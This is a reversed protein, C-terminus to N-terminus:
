RAPRPPRDKSGVPPPTGLKGKNAPESGLRGKPVPGGKPMSGSKPAAKLEMGPPPAADSKPMVEGKAAGRRPLGGPLPPSKASDERVQSLVPASPMLMAFALSLALISRGSNM